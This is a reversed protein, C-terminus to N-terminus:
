DDDRENDDNRDDDDRDDDRDDSDDDREVKIIEGTEQDVDLEYEVGDEVIEISWVPRSHEQEREIEVVEGGGVRELAIEAAWESGIETAATAAPPSTAQGARGGDDDSALATGTIALAAVAGIGLAIVSKRTM